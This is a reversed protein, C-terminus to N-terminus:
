TPLKAEQMAHKLNFLAMRAQSETDYLDYTHLQDLCFLKKGRALFFPLHEDSYGQATVANGNIQLIKYVCSCDIFWQENENDKESM